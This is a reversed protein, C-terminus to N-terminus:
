AALACCAARRPDVVLGAVSCPPCTPTAQSPLRSVTQRYYVVAVVQPVPRSTTTYPLAWALRHLCPCICACVLVCVPEICPRAYLQFCVAYACALWYTYAHQCIIAHVCTYMCMSVPAHECAHAHTQTQTYTLTHTDTHTDRVTNAAGLQPPSTTEGAMRAQIDSWATNTSGSAMSSLAGPPTGPVSVSGAQAACSLDFGVLPMVKYMRIRPSAICHVCLQQCVVSMRGQSCQRRSDNHAALSAQPSGALVHLCKCVCM